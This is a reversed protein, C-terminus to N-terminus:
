TPNASVELNCAFYILKRFPQPKFRDLEVAELINRMFGVNGNKKKVLEHNSSILLLVREGKQLLMIDELLLRNHYVSVAIQGGTLKSQLSKFIGWNFKYEWRWANAAIKSNNNISPGRAKTSNTYQQAYQAIYPERLFLLISTAPTVTVKNRKNQVVKMNRVQERKLSSKQDLQTAAGIINTDPSVQTPFASVRFKTDVLLM